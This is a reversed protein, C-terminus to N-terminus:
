SQVIGRQRGDRLARPRSLWPPPQRLTADARLPSLNKHRASGHNGIHWPLDGLAAFGSSMAHRAHQAASSATDSPRAAHPVILFNYPLGIVQRKHKVARRLATCLSEAGTCLAQSARSSCPQVSVSVWDTKRLLAPACTPLPRAPATTSRRSRTTAARAACAPGRMTASAASPTVPTPATPSTSTRCASTTAAPARTPMALRLDASASPAPATSM